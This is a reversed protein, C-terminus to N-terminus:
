HKEKSGKDQDSGKNGFRTWIKELRDKFQNESQGYKERILGSVKSFDDKANELDDEDLRNWARRIEGKVENWHGHTSKQDM